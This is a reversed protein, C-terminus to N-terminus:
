SAWGLATRWGAAPGAPGPLASPGARNRGASGSSSQGARRCSAEKRAAGAGAPEDVEMGDDVEVVGTVGSGFPWAHTWVSPETLVVVGPRGAGARWVTVRGTRRRWAVIVPGPAVAAM